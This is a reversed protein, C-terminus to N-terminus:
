KTFVGLLQVFWIKVYGLLPIRLVARGTRAIQAESVREADPGYNNDGKTVFFMQNNEEKTEVVRHIIPNNYRQNEYVVVLGVKIDKPKIGKLVMIDGKNFGNKFPYDIFREEGIEKDTYWQGNAQWWDEFGLGRHEMSSSVVAVIPYSTGLLLGVGPYIVWKVLVFSLALNVIWSAFSDEYWIFHWLKKLYDKYKSHM